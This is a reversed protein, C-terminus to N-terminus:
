WLGCQTYDALSEGRALFLRFDRTRAWTAGDLGLVKLYATWLLDATDADRGTLDRAGSELRALLAARETPMGDGDDLQRALRFYDAAQPWHVSLAIFKALAEDSPMAIGPLGHSGRDISVSHRLTSMFRFLNVYRKLQRPNGQFLTMTEELFRSMAPDRDTFTQAYARKSAEVISPRQDPPSAALLDDTKKVVQEVNAVGQFQQVYDAVRDM